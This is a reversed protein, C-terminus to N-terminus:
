ILVGAALYIPAAIEFLFLPRLTMRLRDHLSGTEVMETKLTRLLLIRGLLAFLISLVLLSYIARPGYFNPVAHYNSLSWTLLALAIAFALLTGLLKLRPFLIFKLTNSPTM